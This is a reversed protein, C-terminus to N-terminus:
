KPNLLSESKDDYDNDENKITKFDKNNINNNRILINPNEKVDDKFKNKLFEFNEEDTVKKDELLKFIHEDSTSKALFEIDDKLTTIYCDSEYKKFDELKKKYESEKVGRIIKEITQSQNDKIRFDVFNFSLASILGNTIGIGLGIFIDFVNKTKNIYNSDFEPFEKKLEEKRQNILYDIIKKKVNFFQKLKESQKKPYQKRLKEKIQYLIQNYQPEIIAKLNEFYYDIDKDRYETCEKKIIENDKFNLILKDFGVQSEDNIKLIKKRLFNNAYKKIPIIIKKYKEKIIRKIIVGTNQPTARQNIRYIRREKDPLSFYAKVFEEKINKLIKGIGFGLSIATLATSGTLSACKAGLVTIGIDRIFKFVTNAKSEVKKDFSSMETISQMMLDFYIKEHKSISKLFINLKLDLNEKDEVISQLKKILLDDQIKYKKKLINLYENIIGIHQKRLNEPIATKDTGTYFTNLLYKINRLNEEAIIELLDIKFIEKRVIESFLSLKVDFEAPEYLEVHNIECIMKLLKIYYNVQNEKINDVFILIELIKYHEIKQYINYTPNNLIDKLTSIMEEKDDETECCKICYNKLLDYSDGDSLYNDIRYKIEDHIIVMENVDLIDNYNLIGKHFSTNINNDEEDSFHFNKLQELFDDIEKKGIFNKLYIFNDITLYEFDKGSKSLLYFIVKIDNFSNFYEKYFYKLITKNFKHIKGVNVLINITKKEASYFQNDTVQNFFEDTLQSFLDNKIYNLINKDLYQIKQVQVLKEIGEKTLNNIAKGSIQSFINNNLIKLENIDVNDFFTKEKNILSILDKESYNKINSFISNTTSDNENDNNSFKM